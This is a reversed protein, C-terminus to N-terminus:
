SFGNHMNIAIGKLKYPCALGYLPVQERDAPDKIKGKGRTVNSTFAQPLKLLL